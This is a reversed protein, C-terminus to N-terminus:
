KLHLSLSLKYEAIENLLILLSLMILNLTSDKPYEKVFVFFILFLSKFKKSM